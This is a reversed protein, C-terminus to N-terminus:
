LFHVKFEQISHHDASSWGVIVPPPVILTRIAGTSLCFLLCIFIHIENMKIQGWGQSPWNDWSFLQFLGQFTSQTKDLWVVKASPLILQIQVAQPASYTSDSSSLIVLALPFEHWFINALLLKCMEHILCILWHILCSTSGSFALANPCLNSASSSSTKKFVFNKKYSSMLVLSFASNHLNFNCLICSWSSPLTQIHLVMIKRAHDAQMFFIDPKGLGWNILKRLVPEVSVSHRNLLFNLGLAGFCQFKLGKWM